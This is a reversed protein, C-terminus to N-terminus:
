RGIQSHIRQYMRYLLMASFNDRLFYISTSSKVLVVLCTVNGTSILLNIVTFHDARSKHCLGRYSESLAMDLQSVLGSFCAIVDHLM